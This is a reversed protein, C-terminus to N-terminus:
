EDKTSVAPKDPNVPLTVTVESSFMGRPDGREALTKALVAITRDVPGQFCQRDQFNVLVPQDLDLLDDSLRITVRGMDSSRIDFAQANRQVIVEARDTRDTADVSLWYFRDQTVDDQKWVIRQPLLQRRFQSMWPIAVADEGDMWHKKEPHIRVLHVYGEPDDRHLAALKQEWEAAVQNRNYASDLAGMHITFPLNRLGLPSTENPHGAMMAAAAWRDAMRPALQFVGDGGASYGLLYVRDPDVDEFVILNEILRDFFEDIHAQHWLNWTDTPARPALYVGEEPRYLRKQNQWQSDNVNKPAGGGGHLSIYLSRGTSPKEGFVAYSFPMKLEGLVLERAKMEAERSKRIQAGHDVWLLKAAEAAEAKTLPTQAFSQEVIAPREASPQALYRALAALVGSSAESVSRPPQTRANGSTLYFVVPRDRKESRFMTTLLEDGRHIEVQYDVNPVLAATLYNNADHTEDRTIGEFIPQGTGDLVKITAAFRTGDPQDLVCFMTPVTGPPRKEGHGLYRDTVNVAPVYDISRDWVLPFTLPTRRFSVAYIAHQPDDRRAMAARNTFWARDLENGSPEAAGTFHWDRDWIEIWSHNGSNDAWLPTGVFRAPVGVSRCADILLVSLGTCSALGSKISELPSQDAKPRKTSYSVKVLPFVKQNLLAAAESPTKAERVLPLFRTRFDSRWADRRENISAYPLVDNFFIDKPISDKWPSEELALYALRVNELLFDASLSQLDRDPMNTILFEIAERQEAPSESLARELQQRNEGARHLASSLEQAASTMWLRSDQQVHWQQIASGEVPIVITARFGEPTAQLEARRLPSNGESDLDLQRLSDAWANHQKYYSKQRHYIEMLQDRVAMSDDIDVSTTGQAADTFQVVGWREPRHMDIIGQPSWVWNDERQGPTKAYKGEAVVHQWEVRSFNVRWQDGPKPPGGKTSHRAFSTWPIAIEVTWGTDLDTADNLTGRIQVASALGEIEWSNDARGGDKYPRPLFLDWTTNLANLELEYYQHNDGDPDIFVEFDNDHFIVSDHATLTGCVHPEEMEAAIYFFDRDWLMKARTRFRPKAKRDGEIDVFEDTWPASQWSSEELRGDVSLPVDTQRCVYGRPAIPKMLEWDPIQGFCIAPFLACVVMRFASLACSTVTLPLNRM